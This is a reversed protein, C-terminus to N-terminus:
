HPIQNKEVGEVQKKTLQYKNLKSVSVIGLSTDIILFESNM